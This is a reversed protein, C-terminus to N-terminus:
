PETNAYEKGLMKKTKQSLPSAFVQHPLTNFIYLPIVGLFHLGVVLVLPLSMHRELVGNNDASIATATNEAKDSSKDAKKDTPRQSAEDPKKYAARHGSKIWLALGMITFNGAILMATPLYTGISVFRRSQMLLYFFFSQHLHELLNNLSRVLSEVTRGMAMEDEWGDGITQLTIADVHYPIFSSHLGAANGLGQRVMGKLMTHLRMKYSDNHNYVQQLHAPIGMQGTSISVATNFLDLNPLQGNVGDYVIHLSEFRHDFPYEFAIAGQLAGSKLPLPQVSPPHM